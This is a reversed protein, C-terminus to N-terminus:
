TLVSAHLISHAFDFLCSLTTTDYYFIHYITFLTSSLLFFFLLLLTLQTTPGTRTPTDLSVAYTATYYM